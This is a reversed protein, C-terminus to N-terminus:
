VTNLLAAVDIVGYGMGGTWNGNYHQAAREVASKVQAANFVSKGPDLVHQKHQRSFLLGIAGTVHPAAMSTGSMSVVDTATSARAAVIDAGPACIEPKKRNDRTPGMASFESVAFPKTSCVSGATVVYNATGPVSLTMHEAIHNDFTTSNLADRELWAHIDGSSRVTGSTVVLRWGGLAVAGSASGRLTIALRSDGNDPVYPTLTVEYSTGSPSLGTVAPNQFSVAATSAGNPHILAFSLEVDPKFWLEVWVTPVAAGV